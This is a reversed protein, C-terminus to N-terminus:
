LGPKRLGVLIMPITLLAALMGAWVGKFLAYCQPSFSDIGAALLLLLTPPAVLVLGICGFLLAALWLSRPFKFLWDERWIGLGPTITAVKAKAIKRKQLPILILAVIFPLIFATALIDIAFSNAGWWSLSDKNKLLLWAALGNFFANTVGNVTLEKKLYAWLEQTM